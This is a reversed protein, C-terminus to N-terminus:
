VSSGDVTILISIETQGYWDFTSFIKTNILTVRSILTVVIKIMQFRLSSFISETACHGVNEAGFGKKKM